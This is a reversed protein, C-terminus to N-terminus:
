ETYCVGYCLPPQSAVALFSSLHLGGERPPVRGMASLIWAREKLTKKIVCM